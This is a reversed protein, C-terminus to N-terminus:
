QSEHWRVARAAHESLPAFSYDLERRAKESSYFMHQTALRAMDANVPFMRTGLADNIREVVPGAARVVQPPIRVAPEHGDAVNAVVGVAEEFTLNEGGLIYHEGARGRRRAAIIGGVVDRVDVVSVGGPLCVFLKPDRALAVLKATFTWDGPGFVSTPHVVVADGGDEVYSAVRAEAEAKSQQYAGVPTSVDSETALESGPRGRTGATSTFVVRDVGADRAAKLTAETGEVNVSRVTEPAASQLGVGALHFVTDYSGFAERLTSRDRVDGTHWDVDLGALPAVDSSERRLGGVRWGDAVLRRCLHTGLFGTAGTVFATESM